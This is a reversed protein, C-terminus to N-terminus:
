EGDTTEDREGQLHLSVPNRDADVPQAHEVLFELAKRRLMDGVLGQVQGSQVLAARFEEVPAKASEALQAIAADVEEAEVEISEAEGIAELVIRGGLNREAQSRLEAIFAEQDQGAAQLYTDLGLGQTELRHMFSHLLTEMEAGVLAEPLELGAEAILDDVLKSGVESQGSLVKIQVIEQRLNQHMEDVSEFESVESVWEDSLEPLVKARVGKVLVKLEVPQGGHDGFGPPLQGPFTKVDGAAAGVLPEDMGAIFAQSGVEYLLDTAAAEDVPLGNHTASLDMLVYDGETAARKVDELEAFRNQIAVVQAELEEDTVELSSVEVERDQYAPLKELKPWLTVALEIEVGGEAPRTETVAPATAPVLEAEALATGVIEPLAHELAENQLTDAGVEREVLARPAKGPRFGKIKLNASLRAAARDKAADLEAADLRVVLTREFPGSDTLTTQMYARRAEPHGLPSSGGVEPVM